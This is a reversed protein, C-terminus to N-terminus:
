AKQHILMGKFNDIEKAISIMEVTPFQRIVENNSTDTIRILYKGTSEDRSFELNSAISKLATNAAKIAQRLELDSPSAPPAKQAVDSHSSGMVPISVPHSQGEPLIPRVLNQGVSQM